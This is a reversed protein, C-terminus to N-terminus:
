NRDSPQDGDEDDGLQNSGLDKISATIFNEFRSLEGSHAITQLPAVTATDQNFDAGEPWLVQQGDKSVGVGPSMAIEVRYRKKDSSGPDNEDHQEESVDEREYCRFVLHSLYSLDTVLDLPSKSHSGCSAMESKEFQRLVNILSHMTSASTVYVRSRVMRTNKLPTNEAVHTNLRPHWDSSDRMANKLEQRVGDTLKALKSRVRSNDNSDGGSSTERRLTGRPFEPRHKQKADAMAEAAPPKKAPSASRLQLISGKTVGSKIGQSIVAPQEMPTQPAELLSLTTSRNLSASRRRGAEDHIGAKEEIMYELDGLIKGLLRWTVEVGIMLKEQQSIGYESHCVWDNLPNVLSV